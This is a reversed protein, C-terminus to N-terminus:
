LPQGVRLQDILNSVEAKFKAEGLEKYSNPALTRALAVVFKLTNKPKTAPIAFREDDKLTKLTDIAGELARLKNLEEREIQANHQSVAMEMAVEHIELFEEYWPEQLAFTLLSGAYPVSCSLLAVSGIYTKFDELEPNLSVLDYSLPQGDFSSQVLMGSESRLRPFYIFDQEELTQPDAFCVLQTINQVALVADIGGEEFELTSSHNVTHPVKLIIIGSTELRTINTAISKTKRM